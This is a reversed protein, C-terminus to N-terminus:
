YTPPPTRDDAIRAMARKDQELRRKRRKLMRLILWLVLGLILLLLVGGGILIWYILPLGLHEERLIEKDTPALKVVPTLAIGEKVPLVTLKCRGVEEEGLYYIREALVNDTHEGKLFRVESHLDQLTLGNPLTCYADSAYSFQLLDSGLFDTRKNQLVSEASSLSYCTFNEFGYNFLAISDSGTRDMGNAHLVVCILDNDDQRSYTVLTNLAEETYGTKGAVAYPYKMEQSNTLLPHKMAMYTIEDHKNTPPIQYRETGMMTRLTENKMAEAMILAMDYACTYHRADPLGHPNDFNSNVAGLESARLNMLAAFSEISGSVHEALAQAVENASAVLLAYLCEEVTMVEDETRAISSGGPALDHTARYSFTVSENMECREAVILATLVKTISAPYAREFANKQYLITGSKMETLIAYDASIEPPTEVEMVQTLDILGAARVCRSFLGAALLLVILLSKLRSPSKKM